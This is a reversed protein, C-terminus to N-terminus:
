EWQAASMAAIMDSHSREAPEDEVSAFDISVVSESTSAVSCSPPMPSSSPVKKPPATDEQRTPFTRERVTRVSPVSTRTSRSFLSDQRRRPTSSLVKKFSKSPILKLFEEARTKVDSCRGQFHTSAMELFKPLDIVSSVDYIACQQFYRRFMKCSITPPPSVNFDHVDPLVHGCRIRKIFHDFLSFKPRLEKILKREGSTDLSYMFHINDHVVSIYPEVFRIKWIKVVDFPSSMDIKINGHRDVCPEHTRLIQLYYTLNFTFKIFTPVTAYKTWNSIRKGSNYGLYYGIHNTMTEKAWRIYKELDLKLEGDEGFDSEPIKYPELIPIGSPNAPIFNDFPISFKGYRRRPCSDTVYPTGM